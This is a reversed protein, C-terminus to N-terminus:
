LVEHDPPLLGFSRISQILEDLDRLVDEAGVEFRERISAVIERRSAGRKLGELICLAPGNATYTAGSFPDFVFGTESIALDKLRQM